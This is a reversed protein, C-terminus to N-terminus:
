WAALQEETMLAEEERITLSLVMLSTRRPQTVQLSLPEPVWVRPVGQSVLTGGGIGGASTSPYQPSTVIGCHIGKQRVDKRISGIIEKMHVGRLPVAADTPFHPVFRAAISAPAQSPVAPGSSLVKM